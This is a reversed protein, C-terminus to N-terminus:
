TESGSTKMQPQVMFAQTSAIGVLVSAATFKM